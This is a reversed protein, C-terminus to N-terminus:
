SETDMLNKTSQQDYPVNNNTNILIYRMYSYIKKCNEIAEKVHSKFLESTISFREEDNNASKVSQNSFYVSTIQNLQPMYALTLATPAYTFAAVIDYLEISANALAMSAACVSASLTHRNDLDNELCLLYLDIQSKPYKHLLISPKLAEEIVSSLNKEDLSESKASSGGSSNTGGRLMFCAFPAFRFECNLNAVKFDYDDKRPVERPGYVM